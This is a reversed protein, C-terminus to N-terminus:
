RVLFPEFWVAHANHNTGPCHVILELQEVGSTNVSFWQSDDRSALGKSRWLTKGEGKAEFTLSGGSRKASDALTAVGTLSSYAGYVNFVLRSPRRPYSPHAWLGHRSPVGSVTFSKRIAVVAEEPSAPVLRPGLVTIHEPELDALWLIGPATEKQIEKMRKEARAKSLAALSPLAQQYWAAAHKLLHERASGERAQALDWWADAQALSADPSDIKRLEKEALPSLQAEGGLALMPLGRQWDGKVFCLYQGVALNAREDAPADALVEMAPKVGSLAQEAELILKKSATMHRTLAEHRAGRSLTLGYQSLRKATEFDDGRVADCILDHCSVALFVKQLPLRATKMLDKVSACKMQAVDIQFQKGLEDVTALAMLGDGAETALSRAASLLVYRSAPDTAPESAARLLEEALALREDLTKAKAYRDGYVEKVLSSARKRSAEDPVPSRQEEQAAVVGSTSIALVSTVMGLALTRLVFM